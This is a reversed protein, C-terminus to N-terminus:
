WRWEFQLSLAALVEEIFHCMGSLHGCLASYRDVLTLLLILSLKYHMFAFLEVQTANMAEAALKQLTDQYVGPLKERAVAVREWLDARMQEPSEDNQLEFVIHVM